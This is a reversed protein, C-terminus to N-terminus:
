KKILDLQEPSIRSIIFYRTPHTTGKTSYYTLILKEYIDKLSAPPPQSTTPSEKDIALRAYFADPQIDVGDRLEEGSWIVVAPAVHVEIGKLLDKPIKTTSDTVIAVKSM